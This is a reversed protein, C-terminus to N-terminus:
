QADTETDLTSDNAAHLTALEGDNLQQLRDELNDRRNIGHLLPLFICGRSNQLLTEIREKIGAIMESRTPQEANEITITDDLTPLEATSM